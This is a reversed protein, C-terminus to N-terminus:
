HSIGKAAHDVKRRVLAGFLENYFELTAVRWCRGQGDCHGTSKAPQRRPEEHTYSTSLCSKTTGM